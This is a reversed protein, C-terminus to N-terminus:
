AKTNYVVTKNLDIKMEPLNRILNSILDDTFKVDSSPVTLLGYHLFLGTVKVTVDGADVKAMFNRDMNMFNIRTKGFTQGTSM